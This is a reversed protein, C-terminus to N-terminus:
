VLVHKETLVFDERVFCLLGHRIAAIVQVNDYMRKPDYTPDWGSARSSACDVITALYRM